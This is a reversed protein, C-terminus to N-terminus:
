RRNRCDTPKKEPRPAPLTGGQSPQRRLLGLDYARAICQAPTSAGLKEKILTMHSRTTRETITLREAIEPYSHGERLLGLVELDRHSLPVKRGSELRGAISESMPRGGEHVERIAALLQKYRITKVVYGAAGAELSELVDFQEESSTLMELHIMIRGARAYKVANMAAERAIRLREDAVAQAQLSGEIVRMQRRVQGRLLVVWVGAAVAAISAAVADGGRIGENKTEVFVSRGDQRLYVGGAIPATVAIGVLKIRRDNVDGAALGRITVSADVIDRLPGEAQEVLFAIREGGVALMGAAPASNM